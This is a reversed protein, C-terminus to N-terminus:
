FRPHVTKLITTIHPHAKVQEGIRVILPRAWPIAPITDHHAHGFIPSFTIRNTPASGIFYKNPDSFQITKIDRSLAANINVSPRDYGAHDLFFRLSPETQGENQKLTLHFEKHTLDLHTQAELPADPLPIAGGERTSTGQGWLLHTSLVLLGILLHPSLHSVSLISGLM